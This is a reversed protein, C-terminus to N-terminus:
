ARVLLGDRTQCRAFSRPFYGAFAGRAFLIAVGQSAGAAMAFLALYTVVSLRGSLIIRNRRRDFVSRASTGTCAPDNEDDRVLITELDYARCLNRHFQAFKDAREQLSGRWPRSDRFARMAAHSAENLTISREANSTIRM